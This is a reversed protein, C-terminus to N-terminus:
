YSSKKYKPSVFHTKASIVLLTDKDQPSKIIIKNRTQLFLEVSEILETSNIKGITVNPLFGYGIFSICTILIYKSVLSVGILTPLIIYGTKRATSDAKLKLTKENIYMIMYSAIM